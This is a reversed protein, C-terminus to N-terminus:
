LAIQLCLFTSGSEGKHFEHLENPGLLILQGPEAVFRDQGCTVYLPQDLVWILEWEPHVHPTRYDVTNFFISLGEIQRHQIIELESM